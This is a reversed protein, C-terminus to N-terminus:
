LSDPAYIARALGDLVDPFRTGGALVVSDEVDIIRRNKGAATLAVSPQAAILGDVGGASDLGKSMVLIIDPNLAVLAEDTM